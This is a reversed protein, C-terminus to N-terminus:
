RGECVQYTLNQKKRLREGEDSWDSPHFLIQCIMLSSSKCRSEHNMHLNDDSFTDFGFYFSVILAANSAVQLFLLIKNGIDDYNYLYPSRIAIPSVSFGQSQWKPKRLFFRKLNAIFVRSRLWELIALGESRQRHEWISWWVAFPELPGIGPVLDKLVLSTRCSFVANWSDRALSRM